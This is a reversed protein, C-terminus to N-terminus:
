AFTNFFLRAGKLGGLPGGHQISVALQIHDLDVACRNSTTIAGLWARSRAMSRDSEPRRKAVLHWRWM